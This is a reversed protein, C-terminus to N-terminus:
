AFFCKEDIFFISRRLFVFAREAVVFVRRLLCQAFVLWLSRFSGLISGNLCGCRLLWQLGVGGGVLWALSGVRFRCLCRVLPVDLQENLLWAFGLRLCFSLTIGNVLFGVRLPILNFWEDVLWVFRLRLDRLLRFFIRYDLLGLHVNRNRVVQFQGVHEGAQRAVVGQEQVLDLALGAIKGTGMAPLFVAGGLGLRHGGFLQCGHLFGCGCGYRFVLKVFQDLAGTALLRDLQHRLFPVFVRDVARVTLGGYRSRLRRNFFLRGLLNNGPLGLGRLRQLFRCRLRLTDRFGFRFRGLGLRLFLCAM